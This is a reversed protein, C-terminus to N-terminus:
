GDFVHCLLCDAVYLPTLRQFTQKSLRLSDYQLPNLFTDLREFDVSSRAQCCVVALCSDNGFCQLQGPSAFRFQPSSWEFNIRTLDRKVLSASDRYASNCSSIKGQNSFCFSLLFSSFFFRFNGSRTRLEFHFTLRERM